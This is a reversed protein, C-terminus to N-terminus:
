SVAPTPPRPGTEGASVELVTPIVAMAGLILIAAVSSLTTLLHTFDM